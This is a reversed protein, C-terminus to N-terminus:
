QYQSHRDNQERQLWQMFESILLQHSFPNKKIRLKKREIIQFTFNITVIRFIDKRRRMKFMLQCTQNPFKKLSFVDKISAVLSDM